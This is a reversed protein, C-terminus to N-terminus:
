AEVLVVRTHAAMDHLARNEEDGLPWLYDVLAALGVAPVWAGVIAAGFFLVKGIVERVLVLTFTIPQRDERVVRLGLARKGLTRGNTGVMVPVLYVLSAVAAVLLANLQEKPTWGGEAWWGTDLFIELPLGVAFVVLGDIASAFGRRWWGALLHGRWRESGPERIVAGRESM